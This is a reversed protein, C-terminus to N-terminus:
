YLTCKGIKFQRLWLPGCDFRNAAKALGALIYLVVLGYLNMVVQKCNLMFFSRRSIASRRLEDIEHLSDAFAHHM